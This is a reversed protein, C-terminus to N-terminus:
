RSVRFPMQTTVRLFGRGLVRVLEVLSQTFLESSQKNWTPANSILSRAEIFFVHEQFVICLAWIGRLSLTYTLGRQSSRDPQCKGFLSKAGLRKWANCM